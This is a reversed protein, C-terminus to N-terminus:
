VDLDAGGRGLRRVEQPPIGLEKRFANTLHSHCGFGLSLALESLNGEGDLIAELAQRLRLRNLYQHIPVGTERQFVRCLHYTSVHLARGIDDLRLRERFRRQLLAKADEAYDRRARAPDRRRLAPRDAMRSCGAAVEGLIKFVAAELAMPDQPEKARLRQILLRQLLYARSLGHAYADLFVAWPREEVAPDHHAMVDLLTEQRVAIASGHDGCGFPHESRYPAGPNYLLVTTPDIFASRGRAHLVFAGSHVFAIVHWFQRKEDSLERRGHSCDWRTLGFGPGTFLWDITMGSFAGTEGLAPEARDTM